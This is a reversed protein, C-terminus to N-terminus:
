KFGRTLTRMIYVFIVCASLTLLYAYFRIYPHTAITYQAIGNFIWVLLFLVLTIFYLQQYNSKKTKYKQLSVVASVGFLLIQSGYLFFLDQFYWDLLALGGVLGYILWYVKKQYPTKHWILSYLLLFGPLMLFVEMLGTLVGFTNIIPDGQLIRILMLTYRFIFGIGLYLLALGMYRIGSHRSFAYLRRNRDAIYFACSAVFSVYLTEIVIATLM